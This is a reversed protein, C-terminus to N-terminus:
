TRIHMRNVKEPTRLKFQVYTADNSKWPACINRIKKNIKENNMIEDTILEFKVMYRRRRIVYGLPVNQALQIECVAAIRMGYIGVLLWM